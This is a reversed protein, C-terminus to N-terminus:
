GGVRFTGRAVADFADLHAPAIFPRAAGFSLLYDNACQLLRRDSESVEFHLGEEDLWPVVGMWDVEDRRSACIEDGEAAVMAQRVAARLRGAPAGDRWLAPEFWSGLEVVEGTQGDYLLPARGETRHPGGCYGEGWRSFVLLGPSLLRAELGGEYDRCDFWERDLERAQEALQRSIRAAADTPLGSVATAASIRTLPHVTIEASIGHATLTTEPRRPLALRHAEFGECDDSTRALVFPQVLSTSPVGAGPDGQFGALDGPRATSGPPVHREGRLEEATSRAIDWWADAEADFADAGRSSSPDAEMWAGLSEDGLRTLLITKGIAEDYFAGGDVPIGAGGFCLSIAEGAIAGRYYGAPPQRTPASGGGEQCGPLLPPAALV